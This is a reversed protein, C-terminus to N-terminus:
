AAVEDKEAKKFRNKKAMARRRQVESTIVENNFTPKNASLNMTHLGNKRAAELRDAHKKLINTDKSAVEPSYPLTTIQGGRALFAEVEASLQERLKNQANTARM